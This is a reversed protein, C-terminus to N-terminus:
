GELEAERWTVVGGNLRGKMKVLTGVNVANFFAARGIPQDNLGQFDDNNLASTNMAVGLITLNPNSVAQVPGQLDVEDSASRQEVRTAIVSNGAGARGRVRVHDGISLDNLGTITNGGNANFETQSNVNVTVGSLGTITFTRAALNVAAVNGELKVGAHFKVHKATLIGNALRGEASLKAGVVIEDVTGGRFETNATTQVHTNGIFFDGLGLVQTVFGEVEFEDAQQVGQNEPEVKSATLTTTTSNFSSSGAGKAEVLLGNWANGAPSPMDNILATAYSVTLNGIQLTKAGDNHNKVFGRVEPTVLGAPKKEIFTAQIVGDLRVHGNVEVVDTGAVLNAISQGAINNDIITTNDVLVTQGMVVLSLGDAAVSQVLGEVADHQRVVGASRQGGSMSGTVVATMGLKLDGQSGSQGDVVFAASNTEFRKGNVFVSGFGTITGSASATGSSAGVGSSAGDGGSGCGGLLGVIGIAGLVKFVISSQRM